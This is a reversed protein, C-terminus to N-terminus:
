KFYESINKGIANAIAVAHDINIYVDGTEIRYLSPKPVGTLGELQKLSVGEKERFSIMDSALKKKNFFNNIQKQKKM